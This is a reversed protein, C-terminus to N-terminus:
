SITRDTQLADALEARGSIGLKQYVHTLHVAVTRMSVFLDQAVERNSMGQAVLEAVRRETPTLADRGSTEVRRPRAGAALLEHRAKEAQLPSGCRQALDLARKLPGRADAPRRLRRLTMGLDTLVRAHDLLAGSRGLHVEAEELMSLRPELDETALAISRLSLGISRATGVTRALELEERAVADAEAFEGLTAQSLAVGSRWPLVAPCERGGRVGLADGAAVFDDIASRADGTALRWRARSDLFFAVQREWEGDRELLEGAAAVDRELLADAIHAAIYPRAPAWDYSDFSDIIDGAIRGDAEAADVLGIRMRLYSRWGYALAAMVPTGERGVKELGDNWAGEALEFRDTWTLVNAAYSYQFTHEDWLWGGKLSKEALRAATEAPENKELSYLALNALLVVNSPSPEMADGDLADMREEAWARSEPMLRAVGIRQAEIRMLLEPDSAAEPGVMERLAVAEERYNGSMGVSQALELAIRVQQDQDDARRRAAALTEASSTDGTAIQARGLELLLEAEPEAGSSAAAKQLYQLARSPAGTTTADAAAARLSAIAWPEEIPETALLHVAIRESSGRQAHIARAARAHLISTEGGRLEGAIAERVIPHVFSVVKDVHLIHADVLIDACRAAVDVELEAVEAVLKLPAEADLVALAKTLSRADESLRTLRLLVARAITSPVLDGIRDAEGAVPQIGEEALSRLLEGLYYPNGGTAEVCADSFSRECPRIFIETALEQAADATLPHPEIPGSGAELLVTRVGDNEGIEEGSRGAVVLAVPLDTVRRALYAVFDLSAADGWHADDVAVVLPGRDSLNSILWYLGHLLSSRPDTMASPAPPEIGIDTLGLLSAALGAAGDFLSSREEKPLRLVPVFLQHVLGWVIDREIEGGRGFLVTFGQRSAEGNAWALLESKGIGAPGQMLCVEGSGDRAQTLTRTLRAFEAEREYLRATSRPPNM